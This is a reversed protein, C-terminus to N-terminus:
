ICNVKGDNHGNIFSSVPTVYILGLLFGGVCIASVVMWRQKELKPFEDCIVTLITNVLSNASGLGVTFVM